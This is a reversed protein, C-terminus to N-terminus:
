FMEVEWGVHVAGIIALRSEDYQHPGLTTV